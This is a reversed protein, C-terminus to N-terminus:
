ILTRNSWEHTLLLKVSLFFIQFLNVTNNRLRCTDGVFRWVFLRYGHDFLFLEKFDHWEYYCSNSGMYFMKPEVRIWESVESLM